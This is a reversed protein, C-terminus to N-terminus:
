QRVRRSLWAALFCLVSSVCFGTAFVWYEGSRIPMGSGFILTLMLAAWILANGAQSMMHLPVHSRQLGITWAICTAFMGTIFLHAVAYINIGQIRPSSGHFMTMVLTMGTEVATAFALLLTLWRLGAPRASTSFEEILAADPIEPASYPNDSFADRESRSVDAEACSFARLLISRAVRLTKLDFIM